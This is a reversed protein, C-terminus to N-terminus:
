VCLSEWLHLSLNYYLVRIFYLIYNVKIIIIINIIKEGKVEVM